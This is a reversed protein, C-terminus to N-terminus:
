ILEVEEIRYCTTGDTNWLEQVATDTPGTAELVGCFIGRCVEEAKEQSHHASLSVTGEETQFNIIYIKM